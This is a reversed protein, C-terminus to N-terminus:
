SRGHLGKMNRYSLFIDAAPKLVSYLEVPTEVLTGKIDREPSTALGTFLAYHGAAGNQRTDMWVRVWRERSQDYGICDLDCSEQLDSDSRSISGGTIEFRETDRWTIPDVFAAYFTASYGKNWNM